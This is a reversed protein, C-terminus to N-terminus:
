AGPPADAPGIRSWLAVRYPFLEAQMVGHRVAPDRHMVAAAESESAAQFVAIGFSQEDATLTRGAMLLAGQAALAQLYEFREQVIAAERESPGDTLMGLRTPKIRYLFQAM